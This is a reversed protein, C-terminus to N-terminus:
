AEHRMGMDWEMTKLVGIIFPKQTYQIDYAYLVTTSCGLCFSLLVTYSIGLNTFVM